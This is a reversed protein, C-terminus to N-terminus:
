DRKLAADDIEAEIIRKLSDPLQTRFQEVDRAMKLKDLLQVQIREREIPLIHLKKKFSDQRIRRDLNAKAKAIAERTVENKLERRLQAMRSRADPKIQYTYQCDESCVNRGAHNAAVFFRSCYKCKKLRSLYGNKLAYLLSAYVRQRLGHPFLADRVVLRQQGFKLAAKNESSSNDIAGAVWAHDLRMGRIKELLLTLGLDIDNEPSNLLHEIDTRVEEQLWQVDSLTGDEWQDTGLWQFQSVWRYLGYHHHLLEKWLGPREDFQFNLFDALAAAERTIRSELSEEVSDTPKM